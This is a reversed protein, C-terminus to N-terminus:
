IPITAAMLDSDTAAKTPIRLVIGIKQLEPPEDAHIEIAVHGRMQRLEAVLYESNSM